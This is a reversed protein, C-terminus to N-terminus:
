RTLLSAKIAMPEFSGVYLADFINGYTSALRGVRIIKWSFLGTRENAAVRLQPLRYLKLSVDLM